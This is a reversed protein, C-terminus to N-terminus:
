VELCTTQPPYHYFSIKGQLINSPAFIKNCSDQYIRDSSKIGWRKMQSINHLCSLFM